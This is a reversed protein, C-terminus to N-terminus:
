EKKEKPAEAKPKEKPAEANGRLLKRKRLGKENNQLGVGKPILIRKRITGLLDARMPVGSKDSGGTIKIKGDLGVLSADIEQGILLGLLPNADDEKLEKVISKGKTDSITMKFNAM